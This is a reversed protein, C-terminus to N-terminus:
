PLPLLISGTYIRRLGSGAGFQKSQCGETLSPVLEDNSITIEQGKNIFYYRLHLYLTPLTYLIWVGVFVILFMRDFNLFYLAVLMFFTGMLHFKLAQLHNFFTIQLKM